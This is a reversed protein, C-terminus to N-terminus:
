RAVEHRMIVCFRIGETMALLRLKRPLGYFMLHSIASVNSLGSEGDNRASLTLTAIWFFELSDITSIIPLNVMETM